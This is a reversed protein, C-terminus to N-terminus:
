SETPVQQGYENQKDRHDMQASKKGSAKHTLTCCDQSIHTFPFNYFEVNRYLQQRYWSNAGTGKSEQIRNSCNRREALGVEVMVM